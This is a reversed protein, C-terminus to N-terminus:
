HAVSNLYYNSNAFFALRIQYPQHKFAHHLYFYQLSHKIAVAVPVFVLSWHFPSYCLCRKKKFSNFIDVVHIIYLQEKLFTSSIFIHLNELSSVFFTIWHALNTACLYCLGKCLCSWPFMLDKYLCCSVSSICDQFM